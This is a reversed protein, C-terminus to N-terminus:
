RFWRKSEPLRGFSLMVRYAFVSIAAGGAIMASGTPSNYAAAAEPRSALMLLILWPAAVGLKAANRVWSQRAEVEARIAAEERLYAALSRLVSTLDTGGVERAMRLTELIRDAIPDTLSEKLRDVCGGFNGTTRYDREYDRFASRVSDPGTTALSAVADPLALGSRVSAVLHDVVDPWLLRNARRRANARWTVILGPLLTGVLLAGLSLAIVGLLAHATGASAVGILASLLLFVPLPVKGIGALQLRSRIGDSWATFWTEHRQGKERGDPWLVPATALLIGVGLMAGFVLTM